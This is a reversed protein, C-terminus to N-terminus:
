PCRILGGVEKQEPSLTGEMQTRPAQTMENLVNQEELWIDLKAFASCLPAMYRPALPSAQQPGKLSQLLDCPQAAVFCLLVPEGDMQPLLLLWGDALQGWVQARGARGGHGPPVAALAGWTGGGGGGGATTVSTAAPPRLRSFPCVDCVLVKQKSPVRLRLRLLADCWM